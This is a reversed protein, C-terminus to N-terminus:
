RRARAGAGALARAAITLRYTLRENDRQLAEIVGLLVDVAKDGNGKALMATTLERLEGTQGATRKRNTARAAKSNSTPVTMSLM